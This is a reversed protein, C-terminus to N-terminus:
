SEIKCHHGQGGTKIRMKFVEKPISSTPTGAQFCVEYPIEQM